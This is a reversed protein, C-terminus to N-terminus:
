AMQAQVQHLAESAAMKAECQSPEFGEELIFGGSGIIAWRWIEPQKRETVAFSAVEPMSAVELTGLSFSCSAAASAAEAGCAIDEFCRWLFDSSSNQSSMNPIGINSLTAAAGKTGHFIWINLALANRSLSDHFRQL